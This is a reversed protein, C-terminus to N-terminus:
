EEFDLNTPAPPFTREVKQRTTPVSQDVVQFNVSDVWVQGAGNLLVGYALASAEIPVDLVISYQQWDTSSKIPRDDMNDFALSAKRPEGDVRFWLGAWGKVQNSRIQATLRVRKGKYIEPLSEQMLTGFGKADPSRSALSASVAGSSVTKRDLTVVYDQPHSGALLWGQPLEAAVAAGSASLLAAFLWHTASM